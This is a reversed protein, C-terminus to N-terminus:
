KYYTVAFKLVCCLFLGGRVLAWPPKKYLKSKLNIMQNLQHM